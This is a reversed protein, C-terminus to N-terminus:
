GMSQSRMADMGLDLDIGVRNCAEEFSAGGREIENTVLAAVLNRQQDPTGNNLIRLCRELLEDNM